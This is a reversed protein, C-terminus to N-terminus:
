MDREQFMSETLKQVVYHKLTTRIPYRQQLHTSFTSRYIGIGILNTELVVFSLRCM